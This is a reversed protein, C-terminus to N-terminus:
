RMSGVTLPYVISAPYGMVFSAHAGCKALAGGIEVVYRSNRCLVAVTQSNAVGAAALGRSLADTRADVEAFSLTGRDDVIAVRDGYRAGAVAFAGALSTGWHRVAAGARVLRDPRSPHLAGTRALTRAARAADAIRQTV